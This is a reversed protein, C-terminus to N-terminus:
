VSIGLYDPAATRKSILFSLGLLDFTAQIVIASLNLPIDLATYFYLM